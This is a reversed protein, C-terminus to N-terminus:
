AQYGQVVVRFAGATLAATGITMLLGDTAEAVKHKGSALLAGGGEILADASASGFFDAHYGDADGGGDQGLEVTPTGGSALATDVLVDMSDIVFGTPLNGLAVTGVEGGDEAFDYKFYLSVPGSKWGAGSM